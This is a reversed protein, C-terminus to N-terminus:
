SCDPKKQGSCEGGSTTASHQSVKFLESIWRGSEAFRGYSEGDEESSTDSLMQRLWANQRAEEWEQDRTKETKKRLKRRKAGGPHPSQEKRFKGSTAAEEGDEEPSLRPPEPSWWRNGAQCSTPYTDPLYEPEEELGSDNEGTALHTEGEPGPEDMEEPAGEEQGQIEMAGVTGVWWGEDEDDTENGESDSEDEAILNVEASGEGLLRHVGPTHQGDCGAQTCRPKYLGGQGYCELEAAHKLCFLCLGSKELVERREGARMNMLKDCRLLVHDGDCGILNRARCRRGFSVEWSPSYPRAPAEQEVINVAGTVKLMGRSLPASRDLPGGSPTPKEREVGWSAPEAAAMNLADQWKMEVFREFTTAVDQQM